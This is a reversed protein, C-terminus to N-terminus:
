PKGADAGLARRWLWGAFGAAARFGEWFPRRPIEVEGRWMARVRGVYDASRFCEVGSMADGKTYYRAEGFRRGIWVLRHTVTHLAAGPRRFVAVDGLALAEIPAREVEVTDGNRLLPEMSSGQTTMRFAGAGADLVAEALARECGPTKDHSIRASADATM